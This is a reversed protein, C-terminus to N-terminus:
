TRCEIGWEAANFEAVGWAALTAPSTNYLTEFQLAAGGVNYDASVYDVGSIRTLNRATRTGVDSSINYARQSVARVATVAAPLNPFNYSDKNGPTGSGVYDVVDPTAEDVLLYNNISNGDSGVFQSYNGDANPFLNHIRSDGIFNNNSTGAGNLVYFDDFRVNAEDSSAFSYLHVRDLLGSAGGNRTDGTFTIVTANNVRVEVSGGVDALVVKIELHYWVGNITVNPASTALLTGDAQGINGGRYISISANSDNRKVVIHALGDGVFTLYPLGDCCDSGSFHRIGCGVVFTAHRDAVDFSRSVSTVGFSQVEELCNTGTRPTTTTVQALSVTTWKLSLLGDDFSDMFIVSM